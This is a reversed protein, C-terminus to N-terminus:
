FRVFLSSRARLGARGLTTSAPPCAKMGAATGSLLMRDEHEVSALLPVGLRRCLAERLMALTSGRLQEEDLDVDLAITRLAQLPTSSANSPLELPQLGGSPATAMGVLLDEDARVGADRLTRTSWAAAAGGTAYLKVGALTSLTAVTYGLRTALADVLDGVVASSLQLEDCHIHVVTHPISATTSSSTIAASTAAAAPPSTVSLSPTFPVRSGTTSVPARAWDALANSSAATPTATIVTPPPPVQVPHPIQPPRPALPRAESRTVAAPEPAGVTGAVIDATSPPAPAAAADSPPPTASTTAPAAAASSMMSAPVPVLKPQTFVDLTLAVQQQLGLAFLTRSEHPVREAQGPLPAGKAGADMVLKGEYKVRNITVALQISLAAVLEDITMSQLQEPTLDLHVELTDEGTLGGTASMTAPAPAPADVVTAAAARTPPAPPQPTEVRQPVEDVSVPLVMQQNQVGTISVRRGKSASLLDATTALQVAVNTVRAAHLFHAFPGDANVPSTRPTCAIYCLIVQLQTLGDEYIRALEAARAAASSAAELRSRLELPSSEPVGSNISGSAVSAAATLMTSARSASTSAVCAHAVADSLAMQVEPTLLPSQLPTQPVNMKSSNVVVSATIASLQTRLTALDRQLSQYSASAAAMDATISSM